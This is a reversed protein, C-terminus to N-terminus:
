RVEVRALIEKEEMSEFRVWERGDFWDFAQYSRPYRNCLVVDGAAVSYHYGEQGLQLVRALRSPEKAMDPVVIKQTLNFELPANRFDQKMSEVRVWGSRLAL